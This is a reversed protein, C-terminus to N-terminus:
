LVDYYTCSNSINIDHSKCYNHIFLRTVTDTVPTNHTSLLPCHISSGFTEQMKTDHKYKKYQIRIVDFFVCQQYKETGDNIVFCLEPMIFSELRQTKNFSVLESLFFIVQYGRLYDNSPSYFLFLSTALCEVVATM